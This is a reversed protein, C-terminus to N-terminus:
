LLISIIILCCLAPQQEWILGSVGIKPLFSFFAILSLVIYAEEKARRKEEEGMTGRRGLTCPTSVMTKDGFRRVRASGRISDNRYDIWRTVGLLFPRMRWEDVGMKEDTGGNELEYLM